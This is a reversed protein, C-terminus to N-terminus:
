QPSLQPSPPLTGLFPQSVDESLDLSKEPPKSRCIASFGPPLMRGPMIGRLLITDGTLPVPYPHPHHVLM